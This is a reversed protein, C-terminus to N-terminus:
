ANDYLTDRDIGVFKLFLPRITLRENIGEVVAECVLLPKKVRCKMERVKWM